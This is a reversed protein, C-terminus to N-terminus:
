QSSLLRSLYDSDSRSGVHKTLARERKEEKAVKRNTELVPCDYRCFGCESCILKGCEECTKERGLYIPNNGCPATSGDGLTLRGGCYAIITRWKDMPKRRGKLIMGNDLKFSRFGAIQDKAHMWVTDLAQVLNSVTKLPDYCGLPRASHSFFLFDRLSSPSWGVEYEGNAMLESVSTLLSMWIVPRSRGLYEIDKALGRTVKRTLRSEIGQCFFDEPPLWISLLPLPNIGLQEFDTKSPWPRRYLSEGRDPKVVNYFKPPYEFMWPPLFFGKRDTRHFGVEFFDTSFRTELNRIVSRSTEGLFRVPKEKSSHGEFQWEQLYPSLVGAILVDEGERDAKFKPVCHETYNDPSTIPSRANKVDVRNGDVLLDCIRWEGNNGTSLQSISMDAVTSGATSYIKAVTKEAARASLVRAVHYSQEEQGTQLWLRVLERDDDDLAPTTVESECKFPAELVQILSAWPELKSYLRDLYIREQRLREEEESRRQRRREDKENERKRRREVEQEVEGQQRQRHAESAQTNKQRLENKLRETVKRLDEKICATEPDLGSVKKLLEVYKVNKGIQSQLCIPSGESLAKLALGYTALSIWGKSSYQDVLALIEGHEEVSQLSYPVGERGARVVEDVTAREGQM